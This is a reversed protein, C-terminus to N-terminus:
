GAVYNNIIKKFVDGGKMKKLFKERKLAESKNIFEERYVLKWNKFRSTWRSEGNNHQKLRVSLDSTSGIYYKGEDCQIIYVTHM